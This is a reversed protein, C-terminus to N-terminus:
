RRRLAAYGLGTLAVLGAGGALAWYLKRKSDAATGSGNSELRRIITNLAGLQWRNLDEAQRKALGDAAAAQASTEEPSAVAVRVLQTVKCLAARGDAVPDRAFRALKEAAGLGAISVEADYPKLMTDRVYEMLGQLGLASVPHAVAFQAVKGTRALEGLISAVIYEAWGIRGFYPTFAEFRGEKAAPDFTHFILSEVAGSLRQNYGVWQALADHSFRFASSQQDGYPIGWLIPNQLWGWDSRAPPTYPMDVLAPRKGEALAQTGRAVAAPEYKWGDPARRTRRTWGSPYFLANTSGPGSAIATPSVSFDFAYLGWAGNRSSPELARWRVAARFVEHWVQGLTITYPNAPNGYPVTTRPAWPAPPPPDEDQGFLMGIGMSLLGAAAMGVPGGLFGLGTTLREAVAGLGDMAQKQAFQVFPSVLDPPLGTAGTVKNSIDSFAKSATKKGLDAFGRLRNGGEEQLGLQVDRLLSERVGGSATLQASFGQSLSTVWQTSIAHGGLKDIAKGTEAQLDSFTLGRVGSGRLVTDMVDAKAKLNGVFQKSM